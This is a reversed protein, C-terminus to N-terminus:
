RLPQFPTCLKSTPRADSKDITLQHYMKSIYISCLWLGFHNGYLQLPLYFRYRTIIGGSITGTCTLHGLEWYHHELTTSQTLSCISKSSNEVSKLTKPIASNKNTQTCNSTLMGISITNMPDVHKHQVFSWTPWRAILTTATMSSIITIPGNCTMPSILISWLILSRSSWKKNNGLDHQVELSPTWQLTVETSPDNTLTSSVQYWTLRVAM